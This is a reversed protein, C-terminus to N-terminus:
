PPKFAIKTLLFPNPKWGLSDFVVLNPPVLKGDGNPVWAAQNLVRIFNADFRATKTEHSYSWKYSGYFAARGRAELDALAEWM